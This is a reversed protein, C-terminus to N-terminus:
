SNKNQKLIKDALEIYKLKAEQSSMGKLQMWANLKFGSRVDLGRKLSRNNGFNAQKHFAYLKLM